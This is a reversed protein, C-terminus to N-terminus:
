RDIIMVVILETKLKIRKQKQKKIRVPDGKRGPPGVFPESVLTDGKLIFLFINVKNKKGVVFLM